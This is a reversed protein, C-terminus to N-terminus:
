VNKDKQHRYKLANPGRLRLVSDPDDKYDYVTSIFTGSKAKLRKCGQLRDLKVGHYGLGQKSKSLQGDARVPAAIGESHRGLGKGKVWGQSRLLRGGFGKTHEEFGGIGHWDPVNRGQRLQNEYQIQVFDRSDKDGAGPEYYVGM